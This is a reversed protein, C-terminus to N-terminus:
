SKKSRYISPFEGLLKDCKNFYRSLKVNPHFPCCNIFTFQHLNSHFGLKMCESCSRFYTDIFYHERLNFLGWRQIQKEFYIKLDINLHESLLKLNFNRPNTIYYKDDSYVQFSAELFYLTEIDSNSPM